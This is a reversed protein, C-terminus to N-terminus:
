DIPQLDHYHMTHKEQARETDNGKSSVIHRLRSQHNQPTDTLPINEPANKKVNQQKNM